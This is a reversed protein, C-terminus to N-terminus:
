VESIKNGLDRFDKIECGKDQLVRDVWEPILRAPNERTMRAIEALAFGHARLNAIYCALGATPPPNDVPGFDTAVGTTEPGVRRIVAALAEFAVIWRRVHHHDFL